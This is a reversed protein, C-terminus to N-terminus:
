RPDDQEDEELFPMPQPPAPAPPRVVRRGADEFLNPPRAFVIERFPNPLQNAVKVSEEPAVEQKHTGCDTKGLLKTVLKQDLEVSSECYAGTQPNRHRCSGLAPVQCISCVFVTAEENLIATTVEGNHLSKGCSACALDKRASEAVKVLEDPFLVAKRLAKLNSGALVNKSYSGTLLDVITNILTPHHSESVNEPLDLQEVMHAIIDQFKTYPSRHSIGDSYTFRLTTRPTDVGLIKMRMADDLLQAGGFGQHQLYGCILVLREIVERKVKVTSM